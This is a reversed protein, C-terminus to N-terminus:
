PILLVQAGQATICPYQGYQNRESTNCNALGYPSNVMQYNAQPAASQQPISVTQQVAQQGGSPSLWVEQNQSTTCRHEKTGGNNRTQGLSCNARGYESDVMVYQSALAPDNHVTGATSSGDGSSMSSLEKAIWIIGQIAGIATFPDIAFAKAPTAVGAMLAFTLLTVLLRNKM